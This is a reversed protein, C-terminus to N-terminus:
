RESRLGKGIAVYKTQRKFSETHYLGDDLGREVRATAFLLSSDLNLNDCFKSVCCLWM